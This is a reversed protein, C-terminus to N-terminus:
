RVVRLEWGAVDDIVDDLATDRAGHSEGPVLVRYYHEYKGPITSTLSATRGLVYVRTGPAYVDRGYALEVVDRPQLVPAVGAEWLHRNFVSLIYGERGDGAHFGLREGCTCRAATEHVMPDVSVILGHNKGVQTAM